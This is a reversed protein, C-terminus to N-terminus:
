EGRTVQHLNKRPAETTWKLLIIVGVHREMTLNMDVGWIDVHWAHFSSVGYVALVISQYELQYLSSKIDICLTQIDRKRSYVEKSKLIALHLDM